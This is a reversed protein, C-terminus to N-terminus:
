CTQLCLYGPCMRSIKTRHHRIKPGGGEEKKCVYILAWVVVISFMPLLFRWCDELSHTLKGKLCSIDLQLSFHVKANNCPTQRLGRDVEETRASWLSCLHKEEQSTCSTTKHSVTIPAPGALRKDEDTIEYWSWLSSVRLTGGCMMDEETDKSRQRKPHNQSVSSFNQKAQTQKKVSSSFAPIIHYQYYQYNGKHGWDTSKKHLVCVLTFCWLHRYCPSVTTANVCCVTIGENKHVRGAPQSVEPDEQDLATLADDTDSKSQKSRVLIGLM